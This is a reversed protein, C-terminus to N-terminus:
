LKRGDLVSAFEVFDCITDYVTRCVGDGSQEIARRNAKLEIFGIADDSLKVDYSEAIRVTMEHVLAESSSDIADLGYYAADDAGKADDNDLMDIITETLETINDGYQKIIANNDTM